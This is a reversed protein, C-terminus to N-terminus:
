YFGWIIIIILGLVISLVSGLTLSYGMRYVTNILPVEFIVKILIGLMLAIIINKDKNYIMNINIIFEYLTYFFLLPILNVIINNDSRFLLYSIPKSVITLFVTVTLLVKIIEKFNGIFNDKLNINMIKKLAKHVFYIFILGYFYTNTISTSVDTYNYNYKNTLVFYLIIISIYIYSSRVLNYIVDLKKGVLNKKIESIINLDDKYEKKNKKIIFIYMILLLMTSILIDVLYLLIVNIYTATSFIGFLLIVLIIKISIKIVDSVDVINNNLKKYGLCKVYKITYNLIVNSLLALVMFINIINLKHINLLVGVFYSIVILFLGLIVMLLINLKFLKYNNNEVNINSFLSSFLIYMNFSVTLSLIEKDKTLYFLLLIFFISMIKVLKKM